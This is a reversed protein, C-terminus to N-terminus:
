DKPTGAGEAREERGRRIAIRVCWIFGGYLVIAVVISMIWASLPM